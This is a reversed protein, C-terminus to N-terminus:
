VIKAALTNAVQELASDWEGPSKQRVPWGTPYWLCVHKGAGWHAFPKHQLHVWGPVGLAGALHVVTTSISVVYDLAAVQAAAGDLDNWTDISQDQYIEVGYKWRTLNIADQTDGYQLSVFHM